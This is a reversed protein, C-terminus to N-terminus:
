PRHFLNVAWILLLDILQLIGLYSLTTITPFQQRFCCHVLLLVGVAIALIHLIAGIRFNQKMRIASTFLAAYGASSRTTALAPTINEQATLTRFTESATQPICFVTEPDLDFYDCIMEKKVNPDCSHVLLTVGTATLRRLQYSIEEDARYGVQFLTCAGDTDAVFVPFYGSQLIRKDIELSPLEIQHAEMLTRNGIFIRKEGLWGSVGMENEYCLTDVPPLEVSDGIISKFVAYLPSGIAKTIAAAERISQEVEHPTIVHMDRLFLTGAPFLDKAELAMANSRDLSEVSDFGSLEAGLHHLSKSACRFPYHCVWLTAPSAFLCLTAAFAFVATELDALLYGAIGAIVAVLLGVMALIRCTSAWPSPADVHAMFATPTHTNKATVLCINGQISDGALQGTIEPRHELTIAKKLRPSGVLVFASSASAVQMRSGFLAFLLAVSGAACIGATGTQFLAISLTGAILTGVAALAVPLYEGHEPKAFATFGDFVENQILLNVALCIAEALRITGDSWGLLQVAPTLLLIQFLTLLLSPILKLTQVMVRHTLFETVAPADEPRNFELSYSETDEQAFTEDKQFTDPNLASDTSEELFHTRDSITQKEKLTTFSTTRESNEETTASHSSLIDVPDEEQIPSDEPKPVPATYIHGSLDADALSFQQTYATPKEKEGWLNLKEDVIDVHIPHAKAVVKTAPTIAGTEVPTVFVRSRKVPTVHLARKGPNTGTFSEIELSGSDEVAPAADAQYNSSIDNKGIHQAQPLQERRRAKVHAIVPGIDHHPAKSEKKKAMDQSIIATNVGYSNQTTRSAKEEMRRILEDVSLDTSGISSAAPIPSNAIAAGVTGPMPVSASSTPPNQETLPAAEPKTVPEPVPTESAPVSSTQVAPPAEPTEAAPKEPQVSIEITDRFTFQKMYDANAETDETPQPAQDVVESPNIDEELVLFDPEKQQPLIGMNKLIENDLETPVSLDGSAVQEPTLMHRPHLHEGNSSIPSFGFEANKEPEKGKAANVITDISFDDQEFPTQM